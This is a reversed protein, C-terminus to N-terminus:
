LGDMTKCLSPKLEEFWQLQFNLSTNLPKAFPTINHQEFFASDLATAGAVAFNAGHQFSGNKAL